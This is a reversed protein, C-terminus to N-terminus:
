ARQWARLGYNKAVLAGNVGFTWAGRDTDTSPFAWGKVAATGTTDVEVIKFAVTLGGGNACQEALEHVDRLWALVRVEADKRSPAAIVGDQEADGIRTEVFYLHPADATQLVAPTQIPLCPTTMGLPYRVRVARGSEHRAGDATPRPM